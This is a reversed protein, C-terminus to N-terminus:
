QDLRVRLSRNGEGSESFVAGFSIKDAFSVPDSVPSVQFVTTGKRDFVSYSSFEPEDTIALLKSLIDAKTENPLYAEVIVTMEVSKRPLIQTVRIRSSTIAIKAQPIAAKLREFGKTSVRTRILNLLRLNKLKELHKVGADSVLICSTLDLEVLKTLGSLSELASDNINYCYALQLHKLNRLGAISKLGNATVKAGYLNLRELAVFKGIQALGEDTLPMNECNLDQLKKTESLHEFGSGNLRCEQLDLRQLNKLPKLHQLGEDTMGTSFALSLDVLKTMGSLNELGADSIRNGSLVLRTVEKLKAIQKLGDDTIKTEDIELSRLQPLDACLGLDKDTVAPGGLYLERVSGQKDLTIEAGIQQLRTITADSTKNPANAAEDQSYTRQGVLSAAALM